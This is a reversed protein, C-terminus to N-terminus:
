KNKFPIVTGRNVYITDIPETVSEAEPNEMRRKLLRLVTEGIDQLALDVSNIPPSLETALVNDYGAISMDGPVHLNRSHLLQMAGAALTDATCFVATPPEELELLKEMAHLGSELTYQSYLHILSDDRLIGGEELAKIYGEFREREVNDEREVAILGIRRHGKRIMQSVPLYAGQVDRVALNDVYRHQLTREVMVVPINLRHLRDFLERPVFRNSTVVLGEVQMGIFQDVLDEEERVDQRGEITLLKYGHKEAADIISSNIKQYLTNRNFVVLSGIVGSKQQKLARAMRNPVYGLETVAKEVRVRAEDSVYGNKHLVRGVTAISVGAAAAVDTMKINAM